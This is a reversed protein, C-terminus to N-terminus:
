RPHSLLAAGIRKLSDMMIQDFEEQTSALYNFLTKQEDMIERFLKEFAGTKYKFQITGKGRAGVEIDAICPFFWDITPADLLSFIFPLERYLRQCWLRMEPIDFLARDDDDYASTAFHLTRLPRKGSKYDGLAEIAALLIRSVDDQLIEDRSIMHIILNGKISTWLKLHRRDVSIGLKAELEDLIQDELGSEVRNQVSHTDNKAKARLVKRRAQKVKDWLRM